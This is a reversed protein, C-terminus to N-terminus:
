GPESVGDRDRDRRVTVPGAQVLAAHGRHLGRKFLWRGPELHAAGGPQMPHLTWTRGPDVTAPWLRLETGFTGITDEFRDFQPAHREVTTPGVPSAARIGFLHLRGLAPEHHYLREAATRLYANSLFIPM